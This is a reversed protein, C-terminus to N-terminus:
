DGSHRMAALHRFRRQECWQDILSKLATMYDQSSQLRVHGEENPPPRALRSQHGCHTSFPYWPKRPDLVTM